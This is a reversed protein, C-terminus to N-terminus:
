CRRLCILELRDSNQALPDVAVHTSRALLAQLALAFAVVLFSGFLDAAPIHKLQPAPLLDTVPSIFIVLIALLGATAAVVHISKAVFVIM